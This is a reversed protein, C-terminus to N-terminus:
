KYGRYELQRKMWFISDEYERCTLSFFGAFVDLAEDRVFLLKGKLAEFRLLVGASNLITLDAEVGPGCAEITGIINLIDDTSKTYGEHIYIAVDVDAKDHVLGDSSSGFLYAFDLFQYHQLTNSLKNPDFKKM